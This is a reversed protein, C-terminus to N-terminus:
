RTCATSCRHSIPALFQRKCSQWLANSWHRYSPRSPHVESKEADQRGSTDKLHQLEFAVRSLQPYRPCLRLVRLSPYGGDSNAVAYLTDGTTSPAEILPVNPTIRAAFSAPVWIGLGLTTRIIFQRRTLM